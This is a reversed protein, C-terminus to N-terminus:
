GEAISPRSHHSNQEHKQTIEQPSHRDTVQDPAGEAHVHAPDAAPVDPRGIDQPGGTLPGRDNREEPVHQLAENRPHQRPREDPAPLVPGAWTQRAAPLHAATTVSRPSMSFPKTGTTSALVSTPLSHSCAATASAATTPCQQGTKKRNLPPFATAVPAPVDM